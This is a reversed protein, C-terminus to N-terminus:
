IWFSPPISCGLRHCVLNKSPQAASLYSLKVSGLNSLRNLLSSCWTRQFKSCTWGLGRQKLVEQRLVHEMNGLTVFHCVDQMSFMTINLYKTSVIGPKWCPGSSIVRKLRKWTKKKKEVEHCCFVLSFSVNLPLAIGDLVIGEQMSTIELKTMSYALVTVVPSFSYLTDFHRSNQPCPSYNSSTNLTGRLQATVQRLRSECPMLVDKESMKVCRHLCRFVCVQKMWVLSFM